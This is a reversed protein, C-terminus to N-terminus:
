GVVVELHDRVKLNRLWFEAHIKTHMERRGEVHAM